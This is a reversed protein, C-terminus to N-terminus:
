PWSLNYVPGVTEQSVQKSPLLQWMLLGTVQPLRSPFGHVPLKNLPGLQAGLLCGPGTALWTSSGGKCAWGQWAPSFGPSQLGLACRAACSLGACFLQKHKITLLICHSDQCLLYQSLKINYYWITWQETKCAIIYFPNRGKKEELTSIYLM